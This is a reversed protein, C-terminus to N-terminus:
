GKAKSIRELISDVAGKMTRPLESFGTELFGRILLSIAEDESFGKTELYELEERKIKGISAEHTLEADSSRSNLEPISIVESGEDLTIGRCEIHGKVMKGSAFIRAKSRIKSRNRALLRSIMQSSSGSGNLFVETSYSLSSEGSGAVIQDIRSASNNGDQHIATNFSISKAESYNIYLDQYVGNDEIEAATFASVNIGPLWNHLMIKTFKANRMVHIEELSSHVAENVLTFCGSVGVASAGDDVVTLNYVKQIVGGRGLVFCNFIPEEVVTGKPVYLFIGSDVRRLDGQIRKFAFKEFIDPHEKEAEHIEMYIVGLQELRKAIKKYAFSENLVVGGGKELDLGLEKARSIADRLKNEVRNM